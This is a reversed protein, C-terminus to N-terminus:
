EQIILNNLVQDVGRVNAALRRIIRLQDGNPVIGSITAAGANVDVTVFKLDLDQRGRLVAELRAKTAQDSLDEEQKINKCASSGLALAAAAVFLLRRV